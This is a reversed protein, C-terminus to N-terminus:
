CLQLIKDLFTRWCQGFDQAAHCRLEQNLDPQFAFLWGTQCFRIYSDRTYCVPMLYASWTSEVLM